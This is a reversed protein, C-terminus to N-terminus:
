FLLDPRRRTQLDDVGTRKGTEAIMVEKIIL